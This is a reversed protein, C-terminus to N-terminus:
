TTPLTSTPLGESGPRGPGSPPALIPLAGAPFPIVSGTDSCSVPSIAPLAHTFISMFYFRCFLYRETLRGSGVASVPAIGASTLLTRFAASPVSRHGCRTHPKLREAANNKTQVGHAM